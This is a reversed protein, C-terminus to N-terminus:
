PCGKIEVVAKLQTHHIPASIAKIQEDFTGFAGMQAAAGVVEDVPRGLPNPLFGL